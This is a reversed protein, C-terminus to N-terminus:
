ELVYKRNENLLTSILTAYKKQEEVSGLNHSITCVLSYTIDGENKFYGVGINENPKVVSTKGDIGTHSYAQIEVAKYM